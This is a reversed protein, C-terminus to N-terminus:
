EPKKSTTKKDAGGSAAPKKPAPKKPADDDPEPVRLTPQPMPEPEAPAAPAPAPKPTAAPTPSPVPPPEQPLAPPEAQSGPKRPSAAPTANYQSWWAEMSAPEFIRARFGTMQEFSFTAEKVVDLNEDNKVAGLLADGVSKSRRTGLLNAAKMRVQWPNKVAQLLEILQEDKLQSDKLASSEPFYDGVQITYSDIRSGSLYFNQVRLIEARAAHVLKVLRPDDLAKWLREYPERAGTAIAEDAYDTLRNREKLIVMENDTLPAAPESGPGPALAPAVTERPRSSEGATTANAVQTALTNLRSLQQQQAAETESLRTQAAQLQAKVDALRRELDALAQKSETSSAGAPSSSNGASAGPPAGGAPAHGPTTAAGQMARSGYDAMREEVRGVFFNYLWAGLAGMILLNVLFLLALLKFLGASRRKNGHRVGSVMYSTSSRPKLGLQEAKEDDPTEDALLPRRSPAAPAEPTAPKPPAPAPAPASKSEVRPAAHRVQIQPATVPSPTAVAPEDVEPEMVAATAPAAAPPAVPAPMVARRVPPRPIWAPATEVAAAGATQLEPGSEPPPVEWSAQTDETQDSTEM